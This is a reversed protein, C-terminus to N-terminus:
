MNCALDAKIQDYEERSIEGRAYRQDLIDRPSPLKVAMNGSHTQPGSAFVTKVLWAGGLILGSWFILMFILGLGGFLMM